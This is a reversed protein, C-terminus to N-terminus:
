YILPIIKRTKKAYDMYGSGFEDKLIKEEVSIRYLLAASVPITAIFFSQLTNMGAALGTMILLLGLYSPHRALRYLGDTKLKHERTIAVDATFAKKLQTIAGFGLTIFLQLSLKVQYFGFPKFLYLFMFIFLGFSIITFLKGKRTGTERYPQKFPNTM